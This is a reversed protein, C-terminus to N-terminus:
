SNDIATWGNPIGSNGSDWYMTSDKVFTGTAAVGNVWNNTIRSGDRDNGLCKIYNLSSCGYFMYEYCSTVLLQALLEPATTLSICNTFMSGYCSNALTTAPLEPATTLSSCGYFMGYYCSSALTTIPLLLNEASVLGTCGSFLYWFCDSSISTLGTYNNEDVLSMINGRANFKTGTSSSFSSYDAMGDSYVSNNGRFMIEDGRDVSISTGSETPTISNWTLGNDKSYSITKTFSNDTTKWYITGGSIIDFTLPTSSPNEYANQYIITSATAVKDEYSAELVLTGASHVSEIISSPIVASGNVTAFATVDETSADNFHATVDFTCNASTAIGGYYPINTVWTLNDITIGTLVHSAEQYVTINTSASYGSYSATLTLTGASHRITIESEPIVVSGSITASNSVDKIEGNDYYAIINFSCNGSDATGGSAPIDTVWTQNDFDISMIVPAAQYATVSGNTSFGSYSATLTLTGVNERTSATTAPVSLSGSISAASTIDDLINVKHNAYVHYTCNASTATGGSSPIDTVWTLGSFTIGTISNAEQYIDVSSLVSAGYYSARINLVGVKERTSATNSYIIVDDSFIAASSTIDSTTGDSYYATVTFSCNATTATGGTAPIDDTVWTLDNITVATVPSTYGYDAVDWGVPIASIGHGWTMNQNKVFVGKEAVGEVWRYTCDTASIDTALCTIYGLSSCGGFMYNYSSVGIDTNKLEPTKFLSKCNAFMLKCCDYVDDMNTFNFETTGTLYKCWRFMTACSYDAVTTACIIPMDTINTEYFMSRYCNETLTTAPLVKPATIFNGGRFLDEYTGTVNGYEECYTLATAPLVLNHAYTGQTRFTVSSSSPFTKKGIFEDGYFMSMINGAVEMGKPACFQSWLSTYDAGGPTTNPITKEYTTNNSKLNVVDGKNFLKGAYGYPWDSNGIIQWEGNNVRYYIPEALTLQPHFEVRGGEHLILTYYSDEPSLGNQMVNVSDVLSYQSNSAVIQAVREGFSFLTDATITIIGNGQGSTPSYTLWDVM